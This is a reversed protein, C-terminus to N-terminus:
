WGFLGRSVIFHNRQRIDGVEAYITLATFYSVSPISMLLQTESPSGAPEEITEELKQIEETLSEILDLYSELVWGM